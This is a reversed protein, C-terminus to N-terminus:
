RPQQQAGSGFIARRALEISFVALFICIGPLVAAWWQDQLSSEAGALMNGWSPTPAQVGFGLFDVTSLILIASRWNRATQNMLLRHSATMVAFRTVQPWVVAALLIALEWWSPAFLSNHRFSMLSVVAAAIPWAPICAVADAARMVIFRVISGGYRAAARLVFAGALAIIAAVFSIWLTVWGGVVLRAFEDRANEDAGLAHGGCTAADQFCPPIPNGRWHVEDIKFANDRLIISGAFFAALIVAVVTAAIVERKRLMM